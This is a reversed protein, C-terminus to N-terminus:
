YVEAPRGIASAHAQTLREVAPKGFRRFLLPTLLSDLLTSTILGGFITIAVPHLIEKGPADADIMLPLLAFAAALATMLVPVLRELSGRIIMREDFGEGEHLVLNLYHSIKLIGNRAAIGALTIFGVMSAVSLAQGAVALALVSGVLAMPVSGIVIFALAASRYRGYLVAFILGLSLLSLLGITRTAEQQATFTGEVSTSYGPPLRHTELIGQLEALASQSSTEGSLNALVALRRRGNERSVQNPADVERFEALAGLPVQGRPTAIVSSALAVPEREEEALRVVVDFRRQGDIVEALRRGSTLVELQETV